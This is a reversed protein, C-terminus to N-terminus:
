LVSKNADGAPKAHKEEYMRSDAVRLLEAVSNGDQPAMATGISAGISLEHNELKLPAAIVLRIRKVLQGIREENTDETLVVLEDGGWRAVTDGARMIERIRSAATQLVLDGTEHGYQDNIAKFGDLDLFIVACRANPNRLGRQLAQELRDDFIRRNPLSTLPDILALRAMKHRHDLMMRAFFALFLAVLLGLLRELSHFDLYVPTSRPKAVYHWVGNPVKATVVVADAAFKLDESGWLLSTGGDIENRSYLAFEFLNLPMDEMISAFLSEIDIVTSVMGWYAGRVFVPVRYIIGKGGQILNVPGVLVPQRQRIATEFSPWQDPLQRFDDDLVTENGHLPYVFRTQSGVVIAINRLNRGKAHIDALIANVEAHDLTKHGVSLYSVMGSSLQLVTTLERDVKGRFQSAFGLTTLRKTSQEAQKQLHVIAETGAMVLLFVGVSVWKGLYLASKGAGSGLKFRLKLM